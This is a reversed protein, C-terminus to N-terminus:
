VRRNRVNVSVDNVIAKQQFSVVLVYIFPALMILTFLTFLVYNIINFVRQEANKGFIDLAWKKLSRRQKVSNKVM